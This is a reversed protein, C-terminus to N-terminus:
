LFIIQLLMMEMSCIIRSLLLRQTLWIALSEIDTDQLNGVSRSFMM